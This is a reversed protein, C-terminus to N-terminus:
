LLGENGYNTRSRQIELALRKLLDHGANAKEEELCQILAVAQRYNEGLLGLDLKLKQNEAELEDREDIVTAMGDTLGDMTVRARELRELMEDREDLLTNMTKIDIPLITLCKYYDDEPGIKEDFFELDKIRKRLSEVDVKMM